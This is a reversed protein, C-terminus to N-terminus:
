FLIIAHAIRAIFLLILKEQRVFASKLGLTAM